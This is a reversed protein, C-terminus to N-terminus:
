SLQGFLYIKDGVEYNDSLWRYADLVISEFDRDARKLAMYWTDYHTFDCIRVISGSPEVSSLVDTPPTEVPFEAVIARLHWDWQYLIHATNWGKWRSQINQHRKYDAFAIYFHSLCTSYSRSFVFTWTKASNTPLEMSVYSWTEVLAMTEEAIVAVHM